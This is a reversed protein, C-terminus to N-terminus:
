RRVKEARRRARLQEGSEHGAPRGRVAGHWLCSVADRVTEIRFGHSRFFRRFNGALYGAMHNGQPGHFALYSLNQLLACFKLYDADRASTESAPLPPLHAVVARCTFYGTGEGAIRMSYELDEGLMWFDGRHRGIKEIMAQSVLLCAGTAWCFRLPGDGLLRLADAPTAAERIKTRLARVDPEPFAWLKGEADSLLPAMAGAKVRGMESLLTGLTDPLIVVDDDLFWIVEAREGFEGRAHRAGNAWGAGPGPNTADEIVRLDLRRGALATRVTGAAEHDVIVCGLLAVESAELSEVLRKLEALRRYTVVVAVVGNM